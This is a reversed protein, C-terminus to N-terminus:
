DTRQPVDPLIDSPIVLPDFPRPRNKRVYLWVVPLFTLLIVFKVLGVWHLTPGLSLIVVALLMFTAGCFAISAYYGAASTGRAFEAKPNAQAIQKVLASVFAHYEASQDR